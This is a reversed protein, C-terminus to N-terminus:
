HKISTWEPHHFFAGYQELATLITIAAQRKKPTSIKAKMQASSSLIPTLVVHLAADAEPALKCKKFITELAKSIEGSLEVYGRDSLKGHHIDSLQSELSQKIKLMGAQLPLDTEWKKGQNLKLNSNTQTDGSHNHQHETEARPEVTTIANIMVAVIALALHRSGIQKKGKIAIKM